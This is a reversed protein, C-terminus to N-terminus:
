MIVVRVGSVFHEKNIFSFEFEYTKEFQSTYNETGELPKEGDPPSILYLRASSSFREVGQKEYLRRAVEAPRTLADDRSKIPSWWVESGKPKDSFHNPWRSNKVDLGMIQKSEKSYFVFDDGSRHELTPFIVYKDNNTFDKLFLLETLDNRVQTFQREYSHINSLESVAQNHTNFADSNVAFEIQKRMVPKIIQDSFVDPYCIDKKSSSIKHIHNYQYNLKSSSILEDLKVLRDRRFDICDELTKIERGGIVGSYKGYECVYKLVRNRFENLDWDQSIVDEIPDKLSGSPNKKTVRSITPAHVNKRVFNKLHEGIGMIKRIDNASMCDKINEFNTKLM